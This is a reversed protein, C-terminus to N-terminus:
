KAPKEPKEPVTGTLAEPATRAAMALIRGDSTEVGVWEISQTRHPAPIREKFREFAEKDDFIFNM